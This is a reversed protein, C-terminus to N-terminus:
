ETKVLKEIQLLRELYPQFSSKGNNKKIISLHSEIFKQVNSIKGITEITLSNPLNEVEFFDSLRKITQQWENAKELDDKPIKEIVTEIERRETFSKIASEPLPTKEITEVIPKPEPQFVKWDYRILYDAIDTGEIAGKCELLDSININAFNTLSKAKENWREFGGKDPFLTVSRGRLAKMRKKSLYSLSGCALWIYQPLYATAIIATKESEVIAIPKNLPVKRLLHEGFLCNIKSAQKDYELLWIPTAIQTKTPKRLLVKGCHSNVSKIRKCDYGVFCSDDQKLQYGMIKGYAINKFQDIYWFVTSGNKYKSSGIYFREILEKAKETGFLMDLYQTFNNSQYESLSAKFIHIPIYKPRVEKTARPTFKRRNWDITKTSDNLSINTIDALYEVATKFDTIRPHFASGILYKIVETTGERFDGIVYPKRKSITVKGKGHVGELGSLHLTNNSVWKNGKEKFEFEPFATDIRYALTSYIENQLISKYDIM